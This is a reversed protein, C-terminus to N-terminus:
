TSYFERGQKTVRESERELTQLTQAIHIDGYERMETTHHLHLQATKCSLRSYKVFRGGNFSLQFADLKWRKESKESKESGLIAMSISRRKLGFGFGFGFGM